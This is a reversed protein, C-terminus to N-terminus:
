LYYHFGLSLITNSGLIDLASSSRTSSGPAPSYHEYSVPNFQAFWRLRPFDALSTEFGLGASVSIAFATGNQGNDVDVGWDENIWYRATLSGPNEDDMGGGLEQHAWNLGLGLKGIQAQDWDQSRGQARAQAAFIM